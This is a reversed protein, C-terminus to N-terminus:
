VDGGSPRRRERRAAKREAATPRESQNLRADTGRGSPVVDVGAPTQPEWEFTVDGITVECGPKAGLRPLEDAVGLRALRDALYGVAEDNNFDTQAVWREPREGTVVFGGGGDPEVTFGTADVPVPRIVPRRPLIEPQAARYSAVMEWLAFTLPRLGERTVTSVAFVPWGFRQAVEDRVMEALERADPVDIKNLVVARPREALDGLTSDGQLTPTYAVLEAELAEIRRGVEELTQRTATLEAQQTGLEAPIPALDGADILRQAASRTEDTLQRQLEDIRAELKGRLAAAKQLEAGLAARRAALRELIAKAEELQRPATVLRELRAHQERLPYLAERRRAAEAEAQNKERYLRQEATSWTTSQSREELERYARRKHEAETQAATAAREAESLQRSLAEFEARLQQLYGSPPRKRTPLKM